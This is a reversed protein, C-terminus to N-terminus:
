RSLWQLLVGPYLDVRLLVTIVGYLLAFLIAALAAAKTWSAGARWRWFLGAFIPLAIVFGAVYLAVLLGALTLTLFREPVGELRITEVPPPKRRDLALQAAALVMTIAAVIAPLTAATRTLGSALFIFLVAALLLALNVVSHERITM